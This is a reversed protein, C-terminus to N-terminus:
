QVRDPIKDIIRSILTKHKEENLTEEIIKTTALIVLNSIQNKVEFFAKEKEIEIERKTKITIKEAEDRAEEIVQSRLLQGEKIAEQIKQQMEEQINLLHSKYEQKLKEIEKKEEEIKFYTNEIDKQRSSIIGAVKGFLFKKLIFFLFFFGIIQVGIVGPEIGLTHFLETM